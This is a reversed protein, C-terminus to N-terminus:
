KIIGIRLQIGKSSRGTASTCVGLDASCYLKGKHVHMAPWIAYSNEADTEIPNFFIREFDAQKIDDKDAHTVPNKSVIVNMVSNNVKNSAITTGSGETAQFSVAVRGDPLTVIYPAGAYHDNANPVWINKPDSWVIGDESFLIQIIFPYKGKMSSSEIVMAYTGDSLECVVPMGDRSNHKEGNSAVIPAGFGGNARDYIHVIIHQYSMGKVFPYNKADGGICDSAYYMAFKGDKIYLMHPEWFGTFEKGEHNNEAVITDSSWTVGGDTSTCYRISSYFSSYNDGATHARFAIMYTGDNMVAINANAVSMPQGTPTKDIKIVNVPTSWSKGEDTSTTLRIYGGGSYACAIRGDPLDCMRAYGGSQVPINNGTWEIPQAALIEDRIKDQENVMITDETKLLSTNTKDKPLYESIFLEAADSCYDTKKGAILIKTGEIKVGYSHSELSSLFSNSEARGTDGILIEYKSEDSAAEASICEPTKKLINYMEKRIRTATKIVSKEYVIKYQGLDTSLAASNQPPDTIDTANGESCSICFLMVSCLLLAIVGPTKNSKFM